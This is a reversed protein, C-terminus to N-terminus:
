IKFSINREKEQTLSIFKANETTTTLFNAKPSSPTYLSISGIEKM